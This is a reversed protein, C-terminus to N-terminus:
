EEVKLSGAKNKQIDKVNDLEEVRRRAYIEDKVAKFMTAWYDVDSKAKGLDEFLNVLVKKAVIYPEHGVLRKRMEADRIGQNGFRPKGKDDVEDNINLAVRDEIEQVKEKAKNISTTLEIVLNSSERQKDPIDFLWCALVETDNVLEIKSGMKSKASDYLKYWDIM